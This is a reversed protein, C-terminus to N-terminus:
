RACVDRYLALAQRGIVEWALAEDFRARVRERAGERLGASVRMFADALSAPDGPTWLAGVRGDGTMARFSPIDTLVPTAGCAM